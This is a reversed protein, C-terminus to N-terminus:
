RAGAKQWLMAMVESAQDYGYAHCMREGHTIWDAAVVDAGGVEIRSLEWEISIVHKRWGFTIYGLPTQVRAWPQAVDAYRENEPWYNNPMWEVHGPIGAARLVGLLAFKERDFPLSM